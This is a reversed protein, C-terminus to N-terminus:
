PKEQTAPHSQLLSDDAFKIYEGSCEILGRSKLYKVASTRSEFGDAHNIPKWWVSDSPECAILLDVVAQSAALELEIERLEDFRAEDAGTEIPQPATYLPQWDHASEPRPASQVVTHDRHRCRWAVPESQAARMQELEAVLSEITDIAEDTDFPAWTGLIVKRRMLNIDPIM